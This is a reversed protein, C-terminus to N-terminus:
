AYANRTAHTNRAQTHTRIHAGGRAHVAVDAPLIGRGTGKRANGRGKDTTGCDGGGGNLAIVAAATLMPYGGRAGM